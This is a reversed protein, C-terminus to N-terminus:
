YYICSNLFIVIVEFGSWLSRLPTHTRNYTATFYITGNLINREFGHILFILIALHKQLGPFHFLQLMESLCSLSVLFPCLLLNGCQWTHTCLCSLRIQKWIQILAPISGAWCRSLLLMRFQKKIVTETHRIPNFVKFMYLLYKFQFSSISSNM